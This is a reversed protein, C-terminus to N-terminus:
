AQPYCCWGCLYVMSLTICSCCLPFFHFGTDANDRLFDKTLSHQIYGLQPSYLFIVSLATMKIQFINKFSPFM